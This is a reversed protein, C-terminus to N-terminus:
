GDAGLPSGCPCSAGGPEDLLSPAEQDEHVPVLEVPRLSQLEAREKLAEELAGSELHRAVRLLTRALRSNGVELPFYLTRQALSRHESGRAPSQARSRSPM